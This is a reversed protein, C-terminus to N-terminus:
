YSLNMLEPSIKECQGPKLLIRQRRILTAIKQKINEVFLKALSAYPALTVCSIHCQCLNLFMEEKREGLVLDVEINLGLSTKIM